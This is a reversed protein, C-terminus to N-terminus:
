HKKLDLELQLHSKKACTNVHKELQSLKIQQFCIRCIELSNKM